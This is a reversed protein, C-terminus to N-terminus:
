LHPVLSLHIPPISLQYIGDDNKRKRTIAWKILSFDNWINSSTFIWSSSTALYGFVFQAVFFLLFKINGFMLKIEIKSITIKWWFVLLWWFIYKLTIFVISFTSSKNRFGISFKSIFIYIQLFWGSKMSKYQFYQPYM